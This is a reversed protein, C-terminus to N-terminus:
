DRPLDVTSSVYGGGPKPINVARYVAREGRFAIVLVPWERRGREALPTGYPIHLYMWPTGDFGMKYTVRVQGLQVAKVDSWASSPVRMAGGDRQLAVDALKGDNDVKLLFQVRGYPAPMNTTFSAEQWPVYDDAKAVAATSLQLCLALTVLIKVHM